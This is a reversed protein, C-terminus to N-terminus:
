GNQTYVDEHKAKTLAQFLADKERPAIKCEGRAEDDRAQGVGSAEGFDLKNFDTFLFEKANKVPYLWWGQSESSAKNVRLCINLQQISTCSRIYRLVIFPSGNLFNFNLKTILRRREIGISEMFEKFPRIYYFEFGNKAYFVNASEAYIQRCSIAFDLNRWKVVDRLFYKTTMGNTGIYTPSVFVLDYIMNRIEPPLALFSPRRSTSITDFFNDPIDEFLDEEDSAVCSPITTAPTATIEDFFDDSVWEFLPDEEVTTLDEFFDDSIGGFLPDESETTQTQRTM